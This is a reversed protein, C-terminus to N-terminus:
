EPDPLYKIARSTLLNEASYHHGFLDTWFGDVLKVLEGVHSGVPLSGGVDSIRVKDGVNFKSDLVEIYKVSSANQEIFTGNYLGNDLFFTAGPVSDYVEGELLLRVTDGDRVKVNEVTM